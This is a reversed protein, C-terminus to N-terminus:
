SIWAMTRRISWWRGWARVLTITYGTAALSGLYDGAEVSALGGSLWKPENAWLLLHDPPLRRAGMQDKATCRSAPRPPASLRSLAAMVAPSPDGKEIEVCFGSWVVRVSCDASACTKRLTSVQLLANVQIAARERELARGSPIAAVQRYAPESVIGILAAASVWLAQKRRV